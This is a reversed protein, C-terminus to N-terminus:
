KKKRLGKKGRGRGRTRERSGISSCVEPPHATQSTVTSESWPRHKAGGWEAKSESQHTRRFPQARPSLAAEASCLGIQESPRTVPPLTGRSVHTRLFCRGENCQIIGPSESLLANRFPSPCPSPPLGSPATASMVMVFLRTTVHPDLNAM